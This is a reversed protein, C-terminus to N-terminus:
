HSPALVSSHCPVRKELEIHSIRYGRRQWAPATERNAVIVTKSAGRRRAHAVLTQYLQKGARYRRHSPTIYGHLFVGRWGEGLPEPIVLVDGFGILSGNEWVGYMTYDPHAWPITAWWVEAPLAATWETYLAQMEDAYTWPALPEVTLQAFDTRRCLEM